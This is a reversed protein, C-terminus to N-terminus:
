KCCKWQSGQDSNFIQPAGYRDLAQELVDTALQSDM